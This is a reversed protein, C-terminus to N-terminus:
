VLRESPSVGAIFSQPILLVGENGENGSGKQSPTSAGALTRDIPWISSNSMLVSHLCIVEALNFQRFNFQKIMYSYAFLPNM